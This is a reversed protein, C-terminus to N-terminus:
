PRAAGFQPLAAVRRAVLAIEEVAGGGVLEIIQAEREAVQGLALNAPQGLGGPQDDGVLGVALVDAEDGVAIIGPQDLFQAGLGGRRALDDPEVPGHEALVLAHDMEGDALAAPDLDAALGLREVHHPDLGLRLAQHDARAARQRDGRRRDFPDVPEGLVLDLDLGLHAAHRRRNGRAPFVPRRVKAM